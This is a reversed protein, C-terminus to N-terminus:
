AETECSVSIFMSPRRVLFSLLFSPFSALGLKEVSNPLRRLMKLSGSGDNHTHGCLGAAALGCAAPFSDAGGTSLIPGLLLATMTMALLM